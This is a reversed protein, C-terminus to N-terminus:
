CSLAEREPRSVAPMLIELWEALRAPAIRQLIRRHLAALAEDDHHAWLVRNALLEEREMHRLQEAILLGLQDNIRRGISIRESETARGLRNALRALERERGHDRAHDSRLDAALEPSIRALLPLVEAEEHQAHEELFGLLRLIAAAVAAAEAPLAFEARAAMQATGFLLARLGKHVTTFLDIRTM